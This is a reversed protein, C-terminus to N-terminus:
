AYLVLGKQQQCYVLSEIIVNALEKRTFVDIWDIVTIAMYYIGDNAVRYKFGM